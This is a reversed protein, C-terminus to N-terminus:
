HEDNIIKNIQKDINEYVSKDSYQRQKKIIQVLLSRDESIKKILQFLKKNLDKEEVLYSYGKKEYYIANKLQHGDASSPLPVSIFPIKSNILEALISSGSRTIALNIKSLYDLINNSFNFIEYDINLDEYFSTLFSNQEPLCQQYIKLPIKSENCKKFIETFKEAFIKAAQSGGLILIKLKKDNQNLDSKFQFNLIEKRIINGIECVKKQYKDGIGDLEKNSVFIKKAYPLLYRNAKGIHLNNEYLIFPIGLIRAAICVPFSSYGGMGFVLSPRNILLFITSRLISYFIIFISVLLQFINKKFITSSTIEIIKVDHYDRLYKLGRKDSIIKVDIKKDIFHKALSYAPFIHGGTGGTAIIIKKLKNNM